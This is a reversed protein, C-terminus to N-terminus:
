QRLWEPVGGQYLNKVQLYLVEGKQQEEPMLVLWRYREDGDGVFRKAKSTIVWSEGAPIKVTARGETDTLWTRSPVPFDIESFLDIEGGLSSYSPHADQELDSVARKAAEFEQRLEALRKRHEVDAMELQQDTKRQQLARELASLGEQQEHEASDSARQRERPRAQLAQDLAARALDERRRAAALEADLQTAREAEERRLAQEVSELRALAAEAAKKMSELRYGAIELLPLPKADQGRTVIVAQVTFEREGQDLCGATLVTVLWLVTRSGATRPM